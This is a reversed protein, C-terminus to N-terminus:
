GSHCLKSQNNLMRDVTHTARQQERRRASPHKSATLVPSPDTISTDALRLGPDMGGSGPSGAPGRAGRHGRGNPAAITGSTGPAGEPGLGAHAEGLLAVYTDAELAAATTLSWPKIEYLWGPPLSPHAEYFDFIDPM